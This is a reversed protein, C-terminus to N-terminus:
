QIKFNLKMILRKCLSIKDDFIKLAESDTTLGISLDFKQNEFPQLLNKRICNIIPRRAITTICIHRMKAKDRWEIFRKIGHDEIGSAKDSALRNNITIELAEVMTQIDTDDLSLLLTKRQPSIEFVKRKYAEAEDNSEVEEPENLRSQIEEKMQEASVPHKLRRRAAELAAKNRQKHYENLM